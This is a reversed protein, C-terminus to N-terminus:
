YIAYKSNLYARVADQDVPTVLTSTVIVEAYDAIAALTLRSAVTNLPLAAPFTPVAAGDVQWYVSTGDFTVTHIHWSTDTVGGSHNADNGAFYWVGGAVTGETTLAFLAGDPTLEGFRVLPQYNVFQVVKIVAFITRSKAGTIGINTKTAMSCGANFRVVPKGNLVAPKWIPQNIQTAQVADNGQAGRDLWTAVFDGDTLPLTDASLWLRTGELVPAPLQQADAPIVAADPADADDDPPSTAAEAGGELPATPTPEEGRFSSCALAGVCAASVVVLAARLRGM